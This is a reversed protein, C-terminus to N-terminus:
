FQSEWIYFSAFRGKYSLNSYSHPLTKPILTSILEILKEEDLKNSINEELQDKSIISEMLFNIPNKLFQGDLENLIIQKPLLENQIQSILKKKIKSIDEISFIMCEISRGFDEVKYLHLNPDIIKIHGLSSNYYDALIKEHEITTPEISIISENIFKEFKFIRDREMNRRHEIVDKIIKDINHIENLDEGLLKSSKSKFRNLNKNIYNYIEIPSVKHVKIYKDILENVKGYYKNLEETSSISKM